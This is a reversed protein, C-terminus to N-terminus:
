RYTYLINGCKTVVAWSPPIEQIVQHKLEIRCRKAQKDRSPVFALALWIKLMVLDVGLLGATRRSHSIPFDDRCLYNMSERPFNRTEQVVAAFATCHCNALSEEVAM